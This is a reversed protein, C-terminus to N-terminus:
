QLQLPCNVSTVSPTRECVNEPDFLTADLCSASLCVAAFCVVNASGSVLNLGIGQLRQQLAGSAVVDRVSQQSHHPNSSSIFSTLMLPQDSAQVHM